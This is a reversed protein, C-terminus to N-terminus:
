ALRWEDVLDDFTRILRLDRAFGTALADNVKQWERIIHPLDEGSAYHTNRRALQYDVLEHKNVLHHAVGNENTWGSADDTQDICKLCYWRQPLFVKSENLLSLFVVEEFM